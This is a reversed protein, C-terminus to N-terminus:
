GGFLGTSTGGSLSQCQHGSCVGQKMTSDVSGRNEFHSIIVQSFTLQVQGTGLTQAGHMRSHFSSAPKESDIFPMQILQSFHSKVVKLLSLNFKKFSAKIEPLGPKYLSQKQTVYFALRPSRGCQTGGSRNGTWPHHTTYVALWKKTEAQM